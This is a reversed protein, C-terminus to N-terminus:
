RIFKLFEQRVEDREFVGRLASTVMSVNPKKIGRSTMCMHQAEIMVGVGKPQLVTMIVEAIQETMKEQIQLRRAYADVVRALKSIGVVKGNPIYAVHAKGIIPIIHHECTSNFEIDRLVIMQDCAGESFDKKLIDEPSLMYGGYLEDWSKVVRKPTELLGERDIDEGLAALMSRVLKEKEEFTSHPYTELKM